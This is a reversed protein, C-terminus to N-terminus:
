KELVEWIDNVDFSKIYELLQEKNLKEKFTEYLHKADEFDKDSSMEGWDERSILSLKYAIQLELPSIFLTKDKLMVKFRNEYAEHQIENTIKKFEINPVPTEKFFRIAHEDLMLYAEQVNSANACEYGNSELDEFMRKFKFLTMEPVLLDVDESGRSRGLLISVYGSVIVYSVYKKIISTFDIVFKDLENLVKESYIKKENADYEM